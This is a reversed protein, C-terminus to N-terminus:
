QTKKKIVFDIIDTPAPQAAGGKESRDVAPKPAAPTRSVDSSTPAAAKLSKLDALQGQLQANDSKVKKVEETLALQQSKSTELTKRLEQLELDKSTAEASLKGKSGKELNLDKELAKLNQERAALKQDKAATESELEGLRKKAAKLENLDAAVANYKTQQQGLQSEAAAKLSKLDALQGQLQANDSKVKKVEETLALQQSRSTELTKRLEQLELDKSTAEASLKGKSGKELNLDKELAKLNQERAALKQDKAATESELEGLRKKAAKLENLDAAVANYKTQQQGLQSEAAAKLSKLDALQGQLQANDIKVKKVEETLALQQSKSTELTKRLEQLESEKSTAEASLKGKSGKELTLDKELAKLNQELQALKQDKAATESELEGLRKKAAKLENLDAAVANYKTQQQGLQTESAAKQTKLDALQGQLQANDSKTKKVEEELALQQSKSAEINKQLAQIVSEKSTAEASLKGKSGKELNLDKELAKLNQELQTTAEFVTQLQQLLFRLQDQIRAIEPARTRDENSPVAIGPQRDGSGGHKKIEAATATGKLGSPTKFSADTQLITQRGSVQESHTQTKILPQGDDGNSFYFYGFVSLLIILSIPAVSVGKVTLPKLRLTELLNQFLRFIPKIPRNKKVPQTDLVLVAGEQPHVSHDAIFEKELEYIGHILKHAPGQLDLIIEAGIKKINLAYGRLLANDSIINILRPIGESLHFIEAIASSTFIETESGAVRLRHIIYEATETATLPQLTYNMAIIQSLASNTKLVEGFQNQGALVITILLRGEKKINSVLRIQELLRASLLHAEDIVLVVRKAKASADLAFQRLYIFFDEIGNFSKEIKFLDAVFNFFDGETLSPDHIKASLIQNGFSYAITNLFISKGTGPDGMLCILGKNEKIVYKLTAFAEKHKEGLWLFKPDPDIGFPKSELQYHELYM